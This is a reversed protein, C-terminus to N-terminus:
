AAEDGSASRRRAVLIASPVTWSVVTESLVIDWDDESLFESLRIPRCGGVLIPSIRHLTRWITILAKSAVTCGRTLSAACLIGGPRLLRYAENLVAEITREALLDLVYNAVFRDSVADGLPLRPSGDTQIVTARQSFPALRERAIGVMTSSLDFGSYRCRIPLEQKLLRLAFAGTGCGFEVVHGAERFRAAAILRELAPNEYFSQTDQKRGIRDYVRRAQDVSLTRDM